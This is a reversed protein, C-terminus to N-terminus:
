ELNTLDVCYYQIDEIAWDMFRKHWDITYNHWWNMEYKVQEAFPDIAELEEDLVLQYGEWLNRYYNLEDELEFLTDSIDEVFRNRGLSQVTQHIARSNERQVFRIRPNFRNNADYQMYWDMDEAAYNIDLEGIYVYLAFISTLDDMCEEHVDEHNEIIEWTEETLRRMEVTLNGFQRTIWNILDFRLEENEQRFEQLQPEVYQSHEAFQDQLEPFPSFALCSTVLVSLVLFYKRCM